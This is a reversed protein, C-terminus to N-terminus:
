SDGKFNSHWSHYYSNSCCISDFYRRSHLFSLGTIFLFTSGTMTGARLLHRGSRIKLAKLNDMLFLCTILLILISLGRVAMVQGVPYSQTLYKAMADNVTFLSALM